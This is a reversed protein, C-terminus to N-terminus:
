KKVTIKVKKTSAKFAKDGAFKVTATFSGKKAVKVSITAVGKANTKASFTKGNVKITVKKGKIPTKGTKLTVKIKKAKKVKLTAKAATLKTAKKNVTIKATTLASKYLNGEGLYAITAYKTTAGAYKVKLSAVGNDDTKVIKSVGDIIFYVAKNALAVGNSDKLTAKLYGNNGAYVALNKVTLTTGFLTDASFVKNADLTNNLYANSASFLERGDFVISIGKVDAPLINGTVNIPTTIELSNSDRVLIHFLTVNKAADDYKEVVNNTININGIQTPSGHAENGKEAAILINNAIAQFTNDDITINDSSKQISIVPLGQWNIKGEKFFGCNVFLNGKIISGATSAGGFYISYCNGEFYNDIVQNSGSGQAISVGDLIPGVFSNNKVVIESSQRYINLSKSGQEKNVTPDNALKTSYGGKFKNNEITFGTTQMVCIGSNFDTFECDKVLGGDAASASVGWGAVTGNYKFDNQPNTDIFKIGQIIVNKAQIAIIGNGDGYGKITTTGKGDVIIGDTKITVTNNTFDYLANKSIDVTDGTKAKDVAAQVDAVNASAPEITSGIVDASDDVAIADASDDVAIVDAAADEASVASVSLAILVVLLFSVLVKKNNM